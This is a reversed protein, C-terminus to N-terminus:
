LQLTPNSNQSRGQKRIYVHIATLKGRLVTQVTNRVHQYITNENRNMELYKRMEKPNRRQDMQQKFVHQEIEM